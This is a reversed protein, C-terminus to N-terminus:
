WSPRFCRLALRRGDLRTGMRLTSLLNMTAMKFSPIVGFMLGALVSAGLTFLLATWHLSVDQIRPTDAPLLHVFVRLSGLAAAMGVAGATVGLVVSEVLFQQMLRTGSAGLAGRIAIERERANSRALMLNAVNACAILLILGVAGFLLMLRPRMSGTQAELLPIVTMDDAWVDPMRWPFLSGLLPRLQRIEAQARLPPVGDKLRGFIDLNFTTWPDNVDEARFSVPIVFQTDAYPFRVGAPMVGLIRRSVGDIRIERGIAEPDGGFHQRWYGYNLVM